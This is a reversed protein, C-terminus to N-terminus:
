FLQQAGFVCAFRSSDTYMRLAFPLGQEQRGKHCVGSASEGPLRMGVTKCYGDSEEWSVTEVPLRAGKFHSPNSGTVRGYAEQTVETEGM